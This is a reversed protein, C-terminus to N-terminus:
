EACNTPGGDMGEGDDEDGDDDEADMDSEEDIEQRYGYADKRYTSFLSDLECSAADKVTSSCIFGNKPIDNMIGIGNWIRNINIHIHITPKDGPNTFVEMHLSPM